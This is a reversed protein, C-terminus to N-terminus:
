LAMGVPDRQQWAVLEWAILCCHFILCAQYLDATEGKGLLPSRGAILQGTVRYIPWVWLPILSLVPPQRNKQRNCLPDGKISM